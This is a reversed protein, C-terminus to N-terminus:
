KSMINVPMIVTEVNLYFQRGTGKLLQGLTIDYINDVNIFSLIQVNFMYVIWNLVEEEEAQRGM